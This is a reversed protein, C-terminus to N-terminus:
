RIVTTITTSTDVSQITATGNGHLSVVSGGDHSWAIDKIRGGAPGISIKKMVTNKQLDWLVIRGDEAASALVAARPHFALAQLTGRRHGKKLDIWTKTSRSFVRFAEGRMGYAIENRSPSVSVVLRGGYNPFVRPLSEILQGSHGDFLSLDRPSKRAYLLWENDGCSTLGYVPLIMGNMQISQMADGSEVSWRSLLARSRSPRVPFGVLSQSDASFSVAIPPRRASNQSSRRAPHLEIKARRTLNPETITMSDISIALIRQGDPSYDLQRVPSTLQVNANAAAASSLDWSQIHGQATATIVESKQPHTAVANVRHISAHVSNLTGNEDLLLIENDAAVAIQEGSAASCVTTMRHGGAASFDWVQSGTALSWATLTSGRTLLINRSDSSFAAAQISTRMVPDAYLNELSRILTGNSAKLVGGVCILSQDDPAFKAVTPSCNATEFEVQWVANGALGDLMCASVRSCVAVHSGDSNVALGHWADQSSTAKELTQSYRKLGSPLELVDIRADGAGSRRLVAIVSSDASMAMRVAHPCREQLTRFRGTQIEVVRVRGDAMCQVLRTGDATVVECASYRARVDEPWDRWRGSVRPPLKRRKRVRGTEIDWVILTGDLSKSIVSQGDRDFGAVYATNWHALRGDGLTFESKPAVLKPPSNSVNTAATAVRKTVTGSQAIAVLLSMIVALSLTLTRAAASLRPSEPMRLELLREIRRRIPWGSIGPALLSRRCPIWGTLAEAFDIPDAGTFVAWDDCAQESYEHFERRLIWLLPQWPLVAVAFETMMRSWGDRRRIHAMEHAFVALWYSEDQEYEVDPVLVRPNPWEVAAPCPTDESVYLQPIRRLGLRRAALRSANLLLVDDCVRAHHCMRFLRFVSLVLRLLFFVVAIGWGWALWAFVSGLVRARSGVRLGGGATDPFPQEESARSNATIQAGYHVQADRFLSQPVHSLAAQEAQDASANEYASLGGAPGTMLLDAPEDQPQAHQNNTSAEAPFIGLGAFRVAATAVPIAVCLSCALMALWARFSPQRTRRIAFLIVVCTATSQWLVDLLFRPVGDAPILSLLDSM